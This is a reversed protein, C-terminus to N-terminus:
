YAKLLWFGRSRRRPGTIRRSKLNCAPLTDLDVEASLTMPKRRRRFGTQAGTRIKTSDTGPSGPWLLPLFGEAAGEFEAEESWEAGGAAPTRGPIGQTNPFDRVQNVLDQNRAVGAWPGGSDKAAQHGAWVM